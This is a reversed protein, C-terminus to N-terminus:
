ASQWVHGLWCRFICGFYFVTYGESIIVVKPARSNNWLAIDDIHLDVWFCTEVGDQGQILCLRRMGQTHRGSVNDDASSAGTVDYVRSRIDRLPDLYHMLEHSVFSPDVCAAAYLNNIHDTRYIQGSVCRLYFLM